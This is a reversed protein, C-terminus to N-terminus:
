SEKGKRILKRRFKILELTKEAYKEQLLPDNRMAQLEMQLCDIKKKITEITEM